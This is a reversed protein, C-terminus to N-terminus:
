SNAVNSLAIRNSNASHVTFLLRSSLKALTALLTRYQLRRSTSDEHTATATASPAPEIRSTRIDVLFNHRKPIAKQDFVNVEQTFQLPMGDAVGDAVGFFKLV